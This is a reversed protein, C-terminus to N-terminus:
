PDYSILPRTEVVYLEMKNEEFEPSKYSLRLLTVMHGVFGFDDDDGSWVARAFGGKGTLEEGM